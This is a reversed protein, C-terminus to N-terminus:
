YDFSSLNYQDIINNLKVNYTPDTAYKGTLAATAEQYSSANERWTGSYYLPNWSIDGYNSNPGLRLKLANDLVSETLSPYSRFKAFVSTLKDNIIESTEKEYFKGLYAGKVGFLNNANQALDSKGYASELAAQALMVSPYLNNEDATKKVTPLISNFFDVQEKSGTLGPIDMSSLAVSREVGNVGSAYVHINYKGINLQHNRYDFNVQYHGDSIKKAEYWVIDSQNKQSWVPVRVSRISTKSVTTINIQAKGFDTTSITATGSIDITDVTFGDTGYSETAGNSFDVYTHVNYKGSDKHDAVKVRAEWRKTTANYTATYWRIDDQGNTNSWVPFRVSKIGPYNNVNASILYEENNGKVDTITTDLSFNPRKIMMKGFSVSRNLGNSATAYVHVTYN